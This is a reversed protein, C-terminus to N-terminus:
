DGALPRGNFDAGRLVVSCSQVRFDGARWNLPASMCERRERNFVFQCLHRYATRQADIPLGDERVVQLKKPLPM